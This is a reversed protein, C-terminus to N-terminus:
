QFLSDVISQALGADPKLLMFFLVWIVAFAGVTTWVDVLFEQHQLRQREGETYRLLHRANRRRASRASM